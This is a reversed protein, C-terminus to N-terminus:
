PRTKESGAFPKIHRENELFKSLTNYMFHWMIKSQTYRLMKQFGQSNFVSSQGMWGLVLFDKGIVTSVTLLFCQRYISPTPLEKM